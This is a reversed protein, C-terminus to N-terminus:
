KLRKWVMQGGGKETVTIENESIKTMTLVHDIEQKGGVKLTVQLRDGEVKYMGTATIEKGEATTTIKVMGDKSFEYVAGAVRQGAQAVEWKGVVLKANDASGKNDEALAGLTLVCAMTAFTLPYWSKMRGGKVQRDFVAFLHRLGVLM